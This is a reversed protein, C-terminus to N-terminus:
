DYKETTPLIYIIDYQRKTDYEWHEYKEINELTIM